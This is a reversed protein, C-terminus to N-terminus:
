DKANTLGRKRLDLIVDKFVSFINDLTRVFLLAKPASAPDDIFKDLYEKLSDQVTCNHIDHRINLM